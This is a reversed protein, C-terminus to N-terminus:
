RADRTLQTAEAVLDGGLNSADYSGLGSAMDYGTAAQYLHNTNCGAPCDSSDYQADNSDTTIDFFDTAYKTPDAAVAYLAPNVFGLGSLGASKAEQDWLVYAAATLPTAASTGGIPFWGGLGEPLNLTPLEVPLPLGLVQLLSCNPTNCYMDYGPSGVDDTFQLQTASQM